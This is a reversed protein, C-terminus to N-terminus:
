HSCSFFVLCWWLVNSNCPLKARTVNIWANVIGSNIRNISIRSLAQNGLTQVILLCSPLRNNNNSHEGRGVLPTVLM